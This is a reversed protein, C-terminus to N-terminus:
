FSRLSMMRGIFGHAEAINEAALEKTSRPSPPPATVLNRLHCCLAFAASPSLFIIVGGPWARLVSPKLPLPPPCEPRALGAWRGNTTRPKFSRSAQGDDIRGACDQPTGGGPAGAHKRRARRRGLQRFAEDSRTFDRGACLTLWVIRGHKNKRPSVVSRGRLNRENQLKKKRSNDLAARRTRLRWKTYELKKGGLKWLKQVM